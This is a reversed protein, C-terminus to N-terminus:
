LVDGFWARYPSRKGSLLSIILNSLRVKCNHEKFEFDDESDNSSNWSLVPSRFEHTM